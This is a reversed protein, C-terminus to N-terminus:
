LCGQEPVIDDGAPRLLLLVAIQQSLDAPHLGDAEIGSHARGSPIAQPNQRKVAAERTQGAQPVPKHRSEGKSQGQKSQEAPQHQEEDIKREPPHPQGQAPDAGRGRFCKRGILPQGLQDFARKLQPLGM